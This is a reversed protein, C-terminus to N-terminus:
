LAGPSSPLYLTPYAIKFQQLFESLAKARHSIKNKQQPSLEAATCNLHPIFFIPDYGFGAEGRPQTLIKGEWQAQCILPVPDLHHRVFVIVCYFRALRDPDKLSSLTSLLKQIHDSSRAGLGAYRASYIGPAGGLVDVCLGSDDALAPLGTHKAAHRAKIIANEVFSLGTEEVPPVAYQSQAILNVPLDNLFAQIESLKGQNDSALVIKM